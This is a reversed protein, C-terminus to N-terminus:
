RGVWGLFILTPLPCVFYQKIKAMISNKFRTHRLLDIM